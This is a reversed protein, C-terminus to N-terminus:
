TGYYPFTEPYATSQESRREFLRLLVSLMMYVVPQHRSRIRSRNFFRKEIRSIEDIAAIAKPINIQNKASHRETFEDKPHLYLPKKQSTQDLACRQAGSRSEALALLIFDLRM